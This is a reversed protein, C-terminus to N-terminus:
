PGNYVGSATVILRPRQFEVNTIKWKTNMWVIYRMKGFNEYHDWDGVLSFQNGINLDDNLNAGPAFRQSNRLVDGSYEYETIVEVSVGSGPPTEETKSYGIVGHFKAM